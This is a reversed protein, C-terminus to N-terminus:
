FGSGRKGIKGMLFKRIKEGDEISVAPLNGEAGGGFGRRPAAYGATHIAVTSFGFIRAMIGRHIEVNQVRQYPISKYAKWIIGKEIKLETTTFDYKWFQYALRAYIEGLIIALVLYILLMMGLNGFFSSSEDLDLLFGIGYIGLFFVVIFFIGYTSLRFIWRSGSHLSKM